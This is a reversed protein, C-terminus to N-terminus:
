EGEFQVVKYGPRSTLEGLRVNQCNIQVSSTGAPAGAASPGSNTLLGPYDAIVTAAKADNTM